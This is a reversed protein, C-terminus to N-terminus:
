PNRDDLGGSSNCRGTVERIAKAIPRCRVWEEPIVNVAFGVSQLDASIDHVRRESHRRERAIGPQHSRRRQGQRRDIIIEVNSTRFERRLEPVLELQNTAIIFQVHKM